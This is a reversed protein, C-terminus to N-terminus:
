RPLVYLDPLHYEGHKGMAAAQAPKKTGPVSFYHKLTEYGDGSVEICFETSQGDSAHEEVARPLFTYTGRTNVTVDYPNPWRSDEMAVPTGNRTLSVSVGAAPEFSQGSIIRGTIAPYVYVVDAGPGSDRDPADYYARRVSTVRRLGEHALAILDVKSQTDHETESITHALGRGSSVYRPAIRNLVYCAADLRCDAGTAYGFRPTQEEENCLETIVRIVDDERLNHLEM